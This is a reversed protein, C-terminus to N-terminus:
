KLAIVEPPFIIKREEKEKKEKSTKSDLLIIECYPQWL